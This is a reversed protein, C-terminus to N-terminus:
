WLMRSRAASAVGLTFPYGSFPARAAAPDALPLRTTFALAAAAGTLTLFRRRSTRVALLDALLLREDHM